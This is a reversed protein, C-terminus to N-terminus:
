LTKETGKAKNLAGQPRVYSWNQYINEICRHEQVSHDDATMPKPKLYLDPRSKQSSIRGAKGGQSIFTISLFM